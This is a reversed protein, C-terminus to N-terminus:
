QEHHIYEPSTVLYVHLIDRIEGTISPQKWFVLYICINFIFVSVLFFFCCTFVPVQEQFAMLLGLISTFIMLMHVAQVMSVPM